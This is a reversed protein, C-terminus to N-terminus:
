ARGPLCCVLARYSYCGSCSMEAATLNVECLLEGKRGGASSSGLGECNSLFHATYLRLCRIPQSTLSIVPGPRAM